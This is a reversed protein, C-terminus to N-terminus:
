RPVLRRVALNRIRQHSAVTRFAFHGSAYPQDDVLEFLKEDDRFLQILGGCAIARVHYTRNSELLHKADSLDHEPLLPRLEADGIYRRFRTTTNANGGIGAYYCKLLNYDAFTGSRAVAFFDDPNRADSAMWFLNLDSLRDDDEEALFTVDYEIAIPGEFSRKLWVSCGAPVNITLSGDAARVDGGKELEIVFDDLGHTFDNAYLLDGIAYRPDISDPTRMM